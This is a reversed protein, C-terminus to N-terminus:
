SDGDEEVRCISAAPHESVNERDVLSSSTMNWVAVAKKSM